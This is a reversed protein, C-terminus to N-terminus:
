EVTLKVFSLPDHIAIGFDEGCRCGGQGCVSGQGRTAPAIPTSSAFKPGNNVALTKLTATLSTQLHAILQNIETGM